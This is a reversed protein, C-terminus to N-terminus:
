GTNTIYQVLYATSVMKYRNPFKIGFSIYILHMKLPWITLDLWAKDWISEYQDDPKVVYATSTM